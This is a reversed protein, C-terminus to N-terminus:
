VVAAYSIAQSGSEENLNRAIGNVLQTIKSLNRLSKTDWNKMYLILIVISNWLTM